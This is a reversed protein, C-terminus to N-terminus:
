EGMEMPLGEERSWEDLGGDYVAVSPHGLLLLAFANLTAAIGGGCYTIVHGKTLAGTSAFHRRLEDEEVFTESETQLLDTFPINLSGKIHGDRAYGLGSQGTHLERTLANITCSAGDEMTQLVDQKTAWLDERPTAQFQEGAYGCPRNCLPRGERVWKGLGGDLVAISELGVWRLMWWTRTAWMIRSKSYLVIHHDTSVGSRSLVREVQAVPPRTYALKSSVDSLDSIVDLFGARPLHASEYDSRGSRSKLGSPTNDLYTTTDFVRLQPDDLHDELWATSVLPRSFYNAM